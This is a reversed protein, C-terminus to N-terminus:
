EIKIGHQYVRISDKTLRIHEGEAVDRAVYLSPNIVANSGITLLGPRYAKAWMGIYVDDGINAHLGAQRQIITNKGVTTGHALGVFDHVQCFDHLTTGPEIMACFAVYVGQGVTSGTGIYSTPDIINICRIGKEYVMKILMKRKEKDRIHNPDITWNTAIFFDHTDKYNDINSETDLIPIGYFDDKNGYWDSDLIGVVNLGQRTAADKYRMINACTGLFILPKSM